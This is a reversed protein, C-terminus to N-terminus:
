ISSGKSHAFGYASCNATHDCLSACEISCVAGEYLPVEIIEQHGSKYKITCSCVEYYGM